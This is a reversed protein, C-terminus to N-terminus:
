IALWQHIPYFSIVLSDSRVCHLVIISLWTYFKLFQKIKLPQFNRFLNIDLLLVISLLIVNSRFLKM